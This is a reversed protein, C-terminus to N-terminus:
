AAQLYTGSLAKQIEADTWGYQERNSASRLIDLQTPTFAAVEEYTLWNSRSINDFALRWRLNDPHWCNLIEKETEYSFFSHPVIHDLHHDSSPREGHVNLIKKTLKKTLTKKKTDPRDLKRLRNRISARLSGRLSGPYRNACIDDWSTRRKAGTTTIVTFRHKHDIYTFDPLPTLKLSKLKAIVVDTKNVVSKWTPRGKQQWTNWKIRYIYVGKTVYIYDNNRTYKWNKDVLTFGEKELEGRVISTKNVVSQWAPRRGRNWEAVCTRYTYTGDTIYITDTYGSYEWNPDHTTLGEKELSLKISETTHVTAMEKTVYTTVNYRVFLETVVSIFM